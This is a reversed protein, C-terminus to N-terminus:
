PATDKQSTLAADIMAKYRAKAKEWEPVQYGRRTQKGWRAKREAETYSNIEARLATAYAALMDPTPERIAQLAAAAMDRYRNRSCERRGLYSDWDCGDWLAITIAM